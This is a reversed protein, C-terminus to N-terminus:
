GAWRKVFMQQLYFYYAAWGVVLVAASVALAARLNALKV